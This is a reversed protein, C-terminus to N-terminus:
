TDAARRDLGEWFRLLGTAATDPDETMWWHGRGEIRLHEAGLPEVM